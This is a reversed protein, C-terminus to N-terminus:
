EPKLCSRLAVACPLSNTTSQLGLLELRSGSIGMSRSGRQLSTWWATFSLPAEADLHKFANEVDDFSRNQKREYDLRIKEKMDALTWREEKAPNVFNPKSVQKLRERLLKKAVKRHTSKSSEQYSRGRFSYAIWLYKTGPKEFICGDGRMACGAKEALEEPIPRNGATDTACGVGEGRVGPDEIARSRGRRPVGANGKKKDNTDGGKVPIGQSIDGHYM